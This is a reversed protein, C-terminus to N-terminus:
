GATQTSPRRIEGIQQVEGDIKSDQVQIVHIAPHVTNNNLTMKIGPQGFFSQIIM